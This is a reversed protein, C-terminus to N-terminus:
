RFGWEVIQQLMARRRPGGGALFAPDYVRDRPGEPSERVMRLASEYNRRHDEVHAPQTPRASFNLTFM